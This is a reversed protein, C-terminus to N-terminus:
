CSTPTIRILLSPDAKSTKFGLTHLSCSLKEYWARPAQKLGYISIKLHCVLPHHAKLHEMYVNEELEGHLFVNNVDLQKIMM